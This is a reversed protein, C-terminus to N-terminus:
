VGAEKKTKYREEQKEIYNEELLRPDSLMEKTIKPTNFLAIVSNETMLFGHVTGEIIVYSEDDYNGTKLYHKYRDDFHKQFFRQKTNFLKPKQPHFLKYSNFRLDRINKDKKEYAKHRKKMIEKNPIKENADCFISRYETKFPWLIYYTNKGKEFDAYFAEVKRMEMSYNLCLVFILAFVMYLIRNMAMFSVEGAANVSEPNFLFYMGIGASVMAALLLIWSKVYFLGIFHAYDKITKIKSIIKKTSPLDYDEKTIRTNCVPCRPQMTIISDCNYCKM